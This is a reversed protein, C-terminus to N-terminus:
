MALLRATRSRSVRDSRSRDGGVLLDLSRSAALRPGIESASTSLSTRPIRSESIDPLVEVLDEGARPLPDLAHGLDHVIEAAEGPEVAGRDILDVDVLGEARGELHDAAPELAPSM